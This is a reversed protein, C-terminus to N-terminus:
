FYRRQAADWVYITRYILFIHNRFIMFKLFSASSIENFIIIQSFIEMVLFGIFFCQHQGNPLAGTIKLISLYPTNECKTNKLTSM